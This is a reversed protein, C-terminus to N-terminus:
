AQVARKSAVARAAQWYAAALWVFAVVALASYTLHYRAQGLRNIASTYVQM